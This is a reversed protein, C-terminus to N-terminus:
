KGCSEHRKEWDDILDKSKQWETPHAITDSYRDVTAVITLEAGCSCKQEIRM